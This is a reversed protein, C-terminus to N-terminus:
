LLGRAVLLLLGTVRTVLEGRIIRMFVMICVVARCVMGLVLIFPIFPIVTM